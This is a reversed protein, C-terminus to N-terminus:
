RRGGERAPPESMHTMPRTETTGAGGTFAEWRAVAVDVYRPDLEMALCTRRTREAERRRRMGGLRRAAAAEETHDPSHWLCFRSDRLPTAGCPERNKNLARCQRPNAAM